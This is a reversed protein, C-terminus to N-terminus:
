AAETVRAANRGAILEALVARALLPPVANGVQTFRQGKNGQWPHDAPFTQLLAAEDLTIRIGDNRSKTSPNDKNRNQGRLSVQARGTVAAAPRDLTEDIDHDTGSPNRLRWDWGGVSNGEGEPLRRGVIGGEASRRTGVITTAPRGHLLTGDRAEFRYLGANNTIAMSPQDINRTQYNAGSPRQNGVLVVRNRGAKSTVTAAPHDVSRAGRQGSNGGHSYNPQVVWRGQEKERSLGKRAANGFPEAGGAKCGGGTVTMSPRATAGWGLAEAMSVWPLVGPDLKSPNRPHYRSHTPAPLSVGRGLAAVLIARKRTQPVGYQEAQVYGVEVGYGLGRLIDAYTQWIPLVAPVQELAIEQYPDGARYRTLIWYLPELVLVININGDWEPRTPQDQAAMEHAMERLRDLHKRGDGKGSLSFSQCPPSGILMRCPYDLPNLTRVDAQVTPLWAEHRTAVAHDDLEIGLTRIGLAQAGLCWGGGGSFLDVADFETRAATDENQM